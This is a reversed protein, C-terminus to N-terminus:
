AMYLRMITIISQERTYPNKPAFTNNGIGGMIETAQMQGVAELAWSSISSNDTFTAAQKPLPKGMADALRSLMTAAQERTLNDNPSFQNNGTGNVVGIAAMKEVNVDNTDGFTIRETIESSTVIEYLAVALACFEARTTAQTYKSQLSQPVFGHNIAMTVYEEAWASPKEAPQTPTTNDSSGGFPTFMGILADINNALKVPESIPNDTGYFSTNDVENNTNKNVTFANQKNYDLGFFKLASEHGWTWVSGDNKIALVAENRVTIKYVDGLIAKVPNEILLFMNDSTKGDKGRYDGNGLAGNTNNGWGWLSGDNKIAFCVDADGDFGTIGGLLKYPLRREIELGGPCKGIYEYDNPNYGVVSFAEAFGVIGYGGYANWLSGDNKLALLGDLPSRHTISVVGDLLKWSGRYYFSGGSLNGWEAAVLAHFNRILLTGDTKLIATYIDNQLGAGYLVDSVGDMIKTLDFVQTQSSNKDEMVGPADLMNNDGMGWLTNDNKVVLLTEGFNDAGKSASRVNDTIKVPEVSGNFSRSFVGSYDWLSDDNKIVLAGFGNGILKKVNDAVMLSKYCQGDNGDWVEGLRWLTGDSKHVLIAAQNMFIDVPLTNAASVTGGMGGILLVAALALALVKNKM